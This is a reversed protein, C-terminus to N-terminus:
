GSLSLVIFALEEEKQRVNGNPRSIVAAHYLELIQKGHLLHRHHKELNSFFHFYESPNLM